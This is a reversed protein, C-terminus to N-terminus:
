RIRVWKEPGLGVWIEGLARARRQVGEASRQAM